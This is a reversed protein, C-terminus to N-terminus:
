AKDKPPENAAPADQTPEPKAPEIKAPEAKVSDKRADKKNKNAPEDKVPEGKARVEAIGGRLQRIRVNPAIEIEIEADDTAKSVRGILGGNTIVTDGRRINSVMKEHQKARQQQPRLILFYMILLIIGFPAMQILIDSGSAAAGGAAQAYAPTVLFM